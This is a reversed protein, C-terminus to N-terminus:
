KEIQFPVVEYKELLINFASTSLDWNHRWELLLTIYALSQNSNFNNKGPFM